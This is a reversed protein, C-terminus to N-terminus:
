SSTATGSTTSKLLDEIIRIISQADNRAATLDQQATQLDTRAAKLVATNSQMVAQVGNDPQLPAVASTATQAQVNADATRTNLDAFAAATSSASVGPPLASIRAQLKATVANIDSVITFVRDAMAEIAGQPVVLVFIRYSKTISQVDSKLSTTANNGADTAIQSQLTNMAAIQAQIQSSLSAKETSSLKVMANVRTSLANLATLRRAIEQDAHSVANKETNAMRLSAASNAGVGANASVGASVGSGNSTVNLNINNTATAALLPPRVTITQASAPAIALAVLIGVVPLIRLLSNKNM